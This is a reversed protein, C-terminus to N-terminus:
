RVRSTGDFGGVAYVSGKHVTPELLKQHVYWTGVQTYQFVSSDPINNLIISPSM